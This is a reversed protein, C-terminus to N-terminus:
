EDLAESSLDANEDVGGTQGDAGLSTVVPEGDKLSYTLPFGWPDKPLSKMM